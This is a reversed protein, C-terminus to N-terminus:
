IAPFAFFNANKSQFHLQSAIPSDKLFLWKPSLVKKECARLFNEIRRMVMNSINLLRAWCLEKRWYFFQSQVVCWDFFIWSVGFFFGKKVSKGKYWQLSDSTFSIKFRCFKVNKNSYLSTISIHHGFKTYMMNRDNGNGLLFIKVMNDFKVIRHSASFNLEAIKLITTVKYIM